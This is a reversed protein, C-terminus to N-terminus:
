QKVADVQNEPLAAQVAETELAAKGARAVLPFPSLDLSFRNAGYLQPVIFADVASFTDGLAFKGKQGEREAAELAREVAGLGKAMFHLSWEKKAADDSSLRALVNLNHLPQIGSNIMQIIGRVRARELLEKPYLPIEPFAEELFEIIATSEFLMKGDVELAPVYTSPSKAKHEETFQEGKLINVPVYTFPVKKAHLAIRVRYSASSRWYNHLVLKM